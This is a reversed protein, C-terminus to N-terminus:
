QLACNGTAKPCVASQTGPNVAPFTLTGSGDFTTTLLDAPATCRSATYAPRAGNNAVETIWTTMYAKAEGLCANNASRVTYNQYAPLAVAALIGIIAVVIMLEILTFGRQAQQKLKM